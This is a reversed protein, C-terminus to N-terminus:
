CPGGGGGGFIQLPNSCGQEFCDDGEDRLHCAEAGQEQKRGEEPEKMKLMRNKNNGVEKRKMKLVKHQDRGRARMKM